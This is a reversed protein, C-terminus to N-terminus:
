AIAWAAGTAADVWVTYSVGGYSTITVVYDNASCDYYWDVAAVDCWWLPSADVAANIADDSGVSQAVLVVVEPEATAALAPAATIGLTLASCLAAAVISKATKATNKM